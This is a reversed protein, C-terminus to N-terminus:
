ADSVEGLLDCYRSASEGWSLHAVSQRARQRYAEQQAVDAELDAIRQAVSGLDSGFIFGNEGDKILERHAEIDSAFVILGAALAELMSNSMGEHESASVYYRALRLYNPVVLPAVMGEFHIRELCGLETALRKLEAVYDADNDRGCLLLEFESLPPQALLHVLQVVGKAKHLTGVFVLYPRQLDFDKEDLFDAFERQDLAPLEVGNPIKLLNEEQLRYRRRLLDLFGENVSVVKSAGRLIPGFLYSGIGGQFYKVETGRITLVYRKGTFLRGVWAVAGSFIWNSQVVDYEKRLRIVTVLMALLLGPMQVILWPRVRLNTPIGSGFALKGAGFLGYRIRRISVGDRNEHLPGSGHYPVVVTVQEVKKAIAATLREVFIGADDGSYRPYSTTLVCVRM